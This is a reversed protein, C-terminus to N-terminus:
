LRLPLILHSPYVRARQGGFRCFAQKAPATSHDEKECPGRGRHEAALSCCARGSCGRGGFVAEQLGDGHESVPLHVGAGSVIPASLQRKGLFETIGFLNKKKKLKVCVLLSSSPCVEFPASWTCVM